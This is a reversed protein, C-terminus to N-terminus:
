AQNKDNNRVKVLYQVSPLVQIEEILGYARDSNVLKYIESSEDNVDGFVIANSPCAKQCATKVEGDKINRSEKKAQLKSAQISQVCFTCKEMVGRARVTVDPNLVMRGLETQAPNVDSFLPNDYYSFWNFRRVKYPCNNACYRTGVCRNYVMQNLGEDSHVTALVPCVTECPANDCQQCMVPQYVVSVDSFDAVDNKFERFVNGDYNYQEGGYETEETIAHGDKARFTFYRDIRMWHMERRNIVEQRGVVPVNNESQCAVVCSGCGICANLDIGMMWHHSPYKRKNWLTVTEDYANVKVHEGKENKMLLHPRMNYEEHKGAKKAALYTSLSTEKVISRGEITHHTQTQALKRHEGTAAVKVNSVYYSRNGNVTSVFPFANQGVNLGAKGVKTRGYGLALAVVNPMMGPLMLVPVTVKYGNAEVTVMDGETLNNQKAYMPNVALYNDWCAKTMPDPMEQLWPNNAQVGDGLGMKQYIVMELGGANGKINNVNYSAMSANDSSAGTLELVGQNLSNRWFSDTTSYKSQKSFMQTSWFDKLYQYHSSSNGNWALLCEELSRTNFLKSISPQQLSYSGERVEADGWSELFHNAAAIHSCVSSTEDHGSVLAISAKAGQIQKALASGNAMTYVPNVGAFVVVSNANIGNMANMIATDNGQRLNLSNVGDITQGYNGLMKNINNVMIQVDKNNSGCVVLSAGKASVLKKAAAAVLNGAVEMGNAGAGANGTLKAVENYLQAVVLGENSPLYTSRFDANSGTLSLAPEFHYHVSMNGEENVKRRSSYGAINMLGGGWNGLFDANISVIVNAKAFDYYPVVAKGLTAQNAELMGSYSISDFVVHKAGFQGVFSQILAKTSPSVISPTVLTAGGNSKADNLLGIVEKDFDAWSVEKGGIMPNKTGERHTDYLGLVAASVRASVGNGTLSSLNNAEIKIPRGERTKVLINAFDNGDFYTSAYYNAISPSMEAPHNLFPIAKKIPTTNCAALSAAGVSFGFIKLFDRRNTSSVSANEAIIEDVPIEQGFESSIEQQFAPTNNLEDVSKWYKRESNNM